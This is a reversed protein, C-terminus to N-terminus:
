KQREATTSPKFSVRFEADGASRMGIERQRGNPNKNFEQRLVTGTRSRTHPQGLRPRDHNCHVPRLPIPPVYAIFGASTACDTSGSLEESRDSNASNQCACQSTFHTMSPRRTEETQTQAITM